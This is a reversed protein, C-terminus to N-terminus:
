LTLFRYRLWAEIKFLPNMLESVLGRLYLLLHAILFLLIYFSSLPFHLRSMIMRGLFPRKILLLLYHVCKLTHNAALAGQQSSIPEQSGKELQM